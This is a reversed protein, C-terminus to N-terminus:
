PVVALGFQYCFLNHIAKVTIVPMPVNFMMLHATDANTAAGSSNVPLSGNTAAGMSALGNAFTRANANSNGVSVGNVYMYIDNSGAEVSVAISRWTDATANSQVPGAWVEAGGLWPEYVNAASLVLGISEGALPFGIAAIVQKTASASHRVFCFLTFGPQTGGTLPVAAGTKAHYNLQPKFYQWQTLSGQPLLAGPTWVARHLGLPCEITSEMTVAAPDIHRYFMVRNADWWFLPSAGAASRLEYLSPNQVIPTVEELDVQVIREGRQQTVQLPGAFRVEANGRRHVNDRFWFSDSPGNRQSYFGELADLEIPLLPAHQIRFRRKFTRNAWLRRTSGSGDEFSDSLVRNVRRVDLGGTLSIPYTYTSGM